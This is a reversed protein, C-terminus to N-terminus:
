KAKGKPELATSLKKRLSNRRSIYPLANYNNLDEDYEILNLLMMIERKSLKVERSKQSM